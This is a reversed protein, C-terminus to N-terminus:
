VECNSCVGRRAIKEKPMKRHFLNLKIRMISYMHVAMSAIESIIYYNKKREEGGGSNNSHIKM